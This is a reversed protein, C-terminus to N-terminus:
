RHDIIRRLQGDLLGFSTRCLESGSEAIRSENVTAHSLENVQMAKSGAGARRFCAVEGGTPLRSSDGQQRRIQRGARKLIEGKAPLQFHHLLGHRCVWRYQDSRRHATIESRKVSGAMRLHLLDYQEGWGELEGQAPGLVEARRGHLFPALGSEKLHKVVGLPSRSVYSVAEVSVSETIRAKGTNLLGTKNDMSGPVLYDRDFAGNRIHPLTWTRFEHLQVIIMFQSAVEVAHCSSNFSKETKALRM